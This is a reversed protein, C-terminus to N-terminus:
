SLAQTVETTKTGTRLTELISRLKALSWKSWMNSQDVHKFMLGFIKELTAANTVSNYVWLWQAQREEFNPEDHINMWAAALPPVIPAHTRKAFNIAAKVLYVNPRAHYDIRGGSAVFPYVSEISPTHPGIMLSELMANREQELMTSSSGPLHRDTLHHAGMLRERLMHRAKGRPVSRIFQQPQLPQPGVRILGDPEVTTDPEDDALLDKLDIDEDQSLLKELDEIDDLEAVDVVDSCGDDESDSDSGDDEYESEHEVRQRKELRDFTSLRDPSLSTVRPRKGEKSSSGGVKPIPVIASNPESSGSSLGASFSSTPAPSVSPAPVPVARPCLVRISANIISDRRKPNYDGTGIFGLFSPSAILILRKTYLNNYYLERSIRLLYYAISFRLNVILSIPLLEIRRATILVLARATSYSPM